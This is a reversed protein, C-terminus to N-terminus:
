RREDARSWKAVPPSLSRQLMGTETAGGNQVAPHSSIKARKDGGVRMREFAKARGVVSAVALFLRVDFEPSVDARTLRGAAVEQVVHEFWAGFAEHGHPALLADVQRVMNWLYDGVAPTGGLEAKASEIAERIEIFDASENQAGIARALYTWAKARLRVHDTQKASVLAQRAAAIALAVQKMAMPMPEGLARALHADCRLLKARAASRPDDQGALDFALASLEMAKVFRGERLELMGAVVETYAKLTPSAAKRRAVKVVARVTRIARAREVACEAAARKIKQRARLNAEEIQQLEDIFERVSPTYLRKLRSRPRTTAIEDIITELLGAPSLPESQSRHLVEELQEAHLLEAKALGLIIKLYFAVPPFPCQKLERLAGRFRSSAVPAQGHRRQVKAAAYDCTARALHDSTGKLLESAERLHKNVDAQGGLEIAFLARALAILGRAELRGGAEAARDAERMHKEADVYHAKAALCRGHMFAIEAWLDWDSPAVSPMHSVRLFHKIAMDNLGTLHCHYGMAMHYGPCDVAMAGAHFAPFSAVAADLLDLPLQGADVWQAIMWLTDGDLAHASVALDLAERLGELLRRGGLINRIMLLERLQRLEDATIVRIASMM